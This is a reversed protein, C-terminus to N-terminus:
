QLMLEDGAAESKNARIIGSSNMAQMEARICSAVVARYRIFTCDM